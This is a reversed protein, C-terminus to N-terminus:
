VWSNPDSDLDSHYDVDDLVLHASAVPVLAALLLVVAAWAILFVIDGVIEMARAFRGM